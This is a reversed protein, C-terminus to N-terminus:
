WSSVIFCSTRPHSRVNMSYFCLLRSRVCCPQTHCLFQNKKRHFSLRMLSSFSVLQIIKIIGPLTKFYGINLNIETVNAGPNPDTTMTVSTTHISSPPPPGGSHVSGPGSRPGYDPPPHKEHDNM